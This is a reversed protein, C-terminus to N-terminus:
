ADLTALIGRAYRPTIAVTAAVDNSGALGTVGHQHPSGGGTNGTDGNINFDTGGDVVQNAPVGGGQYFIGSGQAKLSGAGHSHIPMEAITLIHGDTMGTSAISITGIAYTVDFNTPDAAGGITGGQGTGSPGVVLERINADPTNLTWGAPPTDNYFYVVTTGGIGQMAKQGTEVVAVDKLTSGSLVKVGTKTCQLVDTTTVQIRVDETAERKLGSTPELGFNLGPTAGSKDVIGLPATLGGKGSRSLSDQMENGIDNMTDNAWTSTITTNAIVPNGAPLIYNGNGDRPM